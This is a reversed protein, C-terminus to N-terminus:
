QEVTATTSFLAYPSNSNFNDAQRCDGSLNNKQVFTDYAGTSIYSSPPCKQNLAVSSNSGGYVIPACTTNPPGLMDVCSSFYLGGSTQSCYLTFNIVPLAASSGKYTYGIITSGSKIEDAANLVYTGNLLSRIQDDTCAMTGVGRVRNGLTLTLTLASPFPCTGSGCNAM